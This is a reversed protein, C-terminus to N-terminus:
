SSSGEALTVKGSVKITFNLEQRAEAEGGAPEVKKVHGNFTVTLGTNFTVVCPVTTALLDHLDQYLQDAYHATGSVEGPEKMGGVYEKWRELSELHTAAIDDCEVAPPTLSILNEVQVSDVTLTMGHVIDAM